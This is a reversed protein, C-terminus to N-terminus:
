HPRRGGLTVVDKSFDDDKILDFGAREFYAKLTRESYYFLHKPPRFFHWNQGENRAKDGDINLTQVFLVGGPKLFKYADVFVHLPDVLHEATDWLTVVDFDKEKIKGSNLAQRTDGTCVNLNQNRAIRSAYESFEIGQTEWGSQRSALLFIGTACGIDLIKGINSYKSVTDVLNYPWSRENQRLVVRTIVNILRTPSKLTRTIRPPLTSFWTLADDLRTPAAYTQYGISDRGTYYGDAYVDKLESESPIERVFVLKCNTCQVITYTERIKSESNYFRTSDITFWFDFNKCECLDCGVRESLAPTM